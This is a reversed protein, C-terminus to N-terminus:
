IEALDRSSRSSIEAVDRRSRSSIQAIEAVDPDKNRLTAAHVAAMLASHLAADSSARLVMLLRLCVLHGQFCLWWWYMASRISKLLHVIDPVGRTLVGPCCALDRQQMLALERSECDSALFVACRRFCVRCNKPLGGREILRVCSSCPRALPKTSTVGVAKCKDCVVGSAFNCTDWPCTPQCVIKAGTAAARKICETCAMLDPYVTEHRAKAVALGGGSSCAWQGVPMDFQRSGQGNSLSGLHFEMMSTNLEISADPPLANLQQLTLPGDKGGVSQLTAVSNLLAPALSMADTALSLLTVRSLPGKVALADIGELVADCRLLDHLVAGQGLNPKVDARLAKKRRGYINFRQFFQEPSLFNSAWDSGAGHYGPGVLLNTIREGGHHLLAQQLIEWSESSQGRLDFGTAGLMTSRLIDVMVHDDPLAGTQRYLAYLVAEEPFASFLDLDFHELTSGM